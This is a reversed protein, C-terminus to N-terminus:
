NIGHLFPVKILGRPSVMIQFVVHFIALEFEPCVCKGLYATLHVVGQIWKIRLLAPKFHSADCHVHSILYSWLM